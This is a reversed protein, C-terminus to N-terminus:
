WQRHRDFPTDSVMRLGSITGTAADLAYLSAGQLSVYVTGDYVTPSSWIPNSEPNTFTWELDGTEADVAYLDGDRSHYGEGVYVIGDAVTPSSTVPANPETFSWELDGTAADVAHLSGSHLGSNGASTSWM